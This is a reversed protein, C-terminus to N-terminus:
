IRDNGHPMLVRLTSFKALDKGAFVEAIWPKPCVRVEMDARAKSMRDPPLLPSYYTTDIECPWHASAAHVLEIARTLEPAELQDLEETLKVWKKPTIKKELLANIKTLAM